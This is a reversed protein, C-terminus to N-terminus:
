MPCSECEQNQITKPSMEDDSFDSLDDMALDDQWDDDLCGGDSLDEFEEPGAPNLSPVQVLM